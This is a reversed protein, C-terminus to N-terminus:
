PAGSAYAIKGGIITYAVRATPIEDVPVRLIDKTLVTIDALKGPTLSGKQHEEFAAYANNLTYSRLAEARTMAQEPHFAAGNAMRRTVSAYFGAIPDIDEVPTDTGNTVIAGSDILDRWVYSIRGTRPEGLREPMWPGDSSAHVGQMSAIVGLQAFRPVDAPDLHQAHEIRWRLDTLEPHAAFLRAYIDLVERNARDGIAHTALQFGHRLAIRGTEEINEPPDIVLGTSSPMDSYPELLWAGHSGLAGDIMRKIARVALFCNGEALIRYDALRAALSANSVDPGLMAYLRLPLAGEAAWAKYRDITEFSAGADQFSTIGKSVAERGALQMQRRAIQAREQPSRKADRAEIQATVASAAAERLLGTPNGDADRVITGGPPDPTGAAIGALALAAANAFVAHGSAHELSVPNDHSVASLRGHLPVGEVNPQPVAIWKEQHWGRGLIWDGPKARKAAAGVMAVIADFSEAHTLDLITKSEGLAMFHGHGEIFGPMALRGALEIVRTEPGIYPAIEADSGVAAIEYGRVAIAQAEPQAADVTVVRGGRLVLDAPAVTRVSSASAAAAWLAVCVTLCLTRTGTHSM